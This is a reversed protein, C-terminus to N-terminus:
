AEWDSAAPLEVDEVTDDNETSVVAGEPTATVDGALPLEDFTPDGVIVPVAPLTAPSEAVTLTTTFCPAVM